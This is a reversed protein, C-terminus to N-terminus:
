GIAIMEDVLVEEDRHWCSAEFLFELM